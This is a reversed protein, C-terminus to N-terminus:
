PDFRGAGDDVPVAAAAVLELIKVEPTAWTGAWYHTLVLSSNILERPLDLSGKM